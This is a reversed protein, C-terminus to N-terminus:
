PLALVDLHGIEVRGAARRGQRWRALDAPPLAGTDAVAAAAGDALAGILARRDPGLRWPSRATEVSRGRAALGEALAAGADPGLASGFGKDGRQHDHFAALATEEDPPRPTWRERGDYTLAAYFAAHPPLADLFRDLWEASVLDFFASAAVLDAGEVAAGPEVALDLRRVRAGTRRAAEELLAEDDDILTWDAGPLHPALARWAAGTGCGLDVVHLQRGGTWGRLREILGLDRAEADAPERLALWDAAFSM